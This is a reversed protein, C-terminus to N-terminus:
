KKQMRVSMTVKGDSQPSAFFEGGELTVSLPMNIFVGPHAAEAADLDLWWTATLTCLASACTHTVENGGPSHPEMEVGNANARLMLSNAVPSSGGSLTAEVALVYKKKGKAITATLLSTVAVPIDGYPEFGSSEFASFKGPSTSEAFARHPIVGALMMLAAMTVTVAMIATTRM